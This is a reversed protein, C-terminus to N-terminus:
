DTRQQDSKERVSVMGAPRHQAVWANQENLELRVEPEGRGKILLVIAAIAPSVVVAAVTWYSFDRDWGRAWAGVAVCLLVWGVVYEVM